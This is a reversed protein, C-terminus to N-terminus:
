NTRIKTLDTSVDEKMILGARILEVDNDVVSSSIGFSYYNGYEFPFYQTFHFHRRGDADPDSFSAANPDIALPKGGLYAVTQLGDLFGEENAMFTLTFFPDTAFDKWLKFDFQSGGAIYGELNIGWMAQLYGHSATLNMFHTATEFDIAFRDADDGEGEVDAHGQFMKYVNPGDSEAFVTFDNWSEFGFAHLDWIGEFAKNSQNYVLVINNYSVDSSSKLPIYIKNVVQIGRGVTSVDCNDLFRKILFGINQTQPLIDKLKVRGLTTFQKDATILYVDNNGKTVKGASGVGAKLPVRVALDSTDQSYSVQEVYEKKFVYFADEQTVVDTVDGGGYPMAIVDGEGAVRTGSYSFDFPNNIKSVFVSGAMTFGQAAGGSGLAKASRVDGVVIRTLYNAFRDGRPAGSYFTPVLTVPTGSPAAAASAVTFSSDTDIGTYAVENGGYIITGSAPYLIQRVEFTCLGPDSGLTDFTITTGNNATILRVKGNHVGSTIRVYLNVWQSTSWTATAVTLTTASSGTATDAEFIDDTLTSDVPVVLEGGVLTSSLASVAGIWRFYSEYRNGGVVYDQNDANVLSTAFGFEKSDTFSGKLVNWGASEYKKSLYELVTGRARILLEDIALSKRFNYFGRNQTTSLQKTGILLTGPRPALGGRDTVQANRMIRLSGAPSTTTDDLAQFGFKKFRAAGIDIIRDSM